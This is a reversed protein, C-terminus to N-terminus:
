SIAKVCVKVMAIGGWAEFAAAGAEAIREARWHPASAAAKVAVEPFYLYFYNRMDDGSKPSLGTVSGNAPSIESRHLHVAVALSAEGVRRSNNTDAHIAATWRWTPIHVIIGVDGLDVGNRGDPHVFYPIVEGDVFNDCDWTVKKDFRLSTASVYFGPRPGRATISGYKKGQIYTSSGGQSDASSLNDLPRPDGAHPAANGPAYARPCGDVDIQMSGKHFFGARDTLTYLPVSRIVSKKLEDSFYIEELTDVLHPKPGNGPAAPTAAALV